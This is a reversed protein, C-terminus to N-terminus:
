DVRGESLRELYASEKKRWAATDIVSWAKRKASAAFVKRIETLVRAVEAPNRKTTAPIVRAAPKGDKEIVFEEGKFIVSNLM